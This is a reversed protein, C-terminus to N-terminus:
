ESVNPSDPKNVSFVPRIEGNKDEVLKVTQNPKRDDTFDTKYSFVDHPKEIYDFLAVEHNDVIHQSCSVTITGFLEYGMKDAYHNYQSEISRCTEWLKNKPLLFYNEKVFTNEQILVSSCIAGLAVFSDLTGLRKYKTVKNVINTCSNSISSQTFLHVPIANESVKIPVNLKDAQSFSSFLSSTAFLITIIKKM